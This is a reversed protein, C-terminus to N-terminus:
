NKMGTINKLVPIRNLIILIISSIIVAVLVIIPVNIFPSINLNFYGYDKILDLPINVILYIGYTLGAFQTIKSNIFDSKKGYLTKFNTNKLLIFLGMAKFCSGPEVNGVIIYTFDTQHAMYSPIYLTLYTLLIGAILLILGFKRDNWIKKDTKSLYYGLIFYGLPGTFMNLYNFIYPTFKLFNLLLVIFWIVLAYEIEKETSNKIWKYLLPLALYFGIIMYIYWFEISIITPDLIVNILETIFTEVSYVNLTHDIIVDKLFFYFLWFFFPILVRKLRQPVKSIPEERDLLLMGSVLIFLLVGARTISIAWLGQNWLNTFAEHEGPYSSSLHTAIVLLIGIVRLYDAYIIRKM